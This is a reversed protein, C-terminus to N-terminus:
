RGFVAFTRKVSRVGDSFDISVHQAATHLTVQQYTGSGAAYAVRSEGETVIRLAPFDQANWALVINNEDIAVTEINPEGHITAVREASASATVLRILRITQAVAPALPVDLRYVGSASFPFSVLLQGLTNYALLTATGATEARSLQAPRVFLDFAPDITVNTANISGSVELVPCVAPTTTAPAASESCSGIRTRVVNVTAVHAPPMSVLLLRM